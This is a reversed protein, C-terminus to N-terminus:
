FVSFFHHPTPPPHVFPGLDRLPATCYIVFVRPARGGDAFGRGRTKLAEGSRATGGVSGGGERGETPGQVPELGRRGSDGGGM